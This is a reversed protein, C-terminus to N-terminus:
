IVWIPTDSVCQTLGISCFVEPGVLDLHIKYKRARKQDRMLVHTIVGIMTAKFVKYM